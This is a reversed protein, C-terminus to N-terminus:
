SFDRHRALPSVARVNETLPQSTAKPTLPREAVQCAASVFGQPMYFASYAIWPREDPGNYVCASGPGYVGNGSRLITVNASNRRAPADPRPTESRRAEAAVYWSAPDLPDDDVSIARNIQSACSYTDPLDLRGIISV